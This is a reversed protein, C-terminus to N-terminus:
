LHCVQATTKSASPQAADEWEEDGSADSDGLSSEADSGAEEEDDEGASAKDIAALAGGSSSAVGSSQLGEFAEGLWACLQAQLSEPAAAAEAMSQQQGESEV